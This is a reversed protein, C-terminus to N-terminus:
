TRPRTRPRERAARPRARPGAGAHPRPPAHGQDPRHVGHGRRRDVPLARAVRLLLARPRGTAPSAGLDLYGAFLAPDGTRLRRFVPWPDGDFPAELRRTLNAQYIDGREIADRVAEVDRLWADHPTLSRSRRGARSGRRSRTAPWRGRRSRAGDVRACCRRSAGIAGARRRWRGGTGGAVRPRDPPGLGADLRPPALRLAAPAPRGPRDVAAARVTARPRLRPLRRPRWRVAPMAPPDLGGPEGGGMAASPDGGMRALISRGRRVPRARRVGRGRGRHPRRDSLELTGDTGTPRERAPRPGPLDRFAEAADLPAVRDLAPVRLCISPTGAQGAGHRQASRAEPSNSVLRHYPPTLLGAVSPIPPFTGALSSPMRM